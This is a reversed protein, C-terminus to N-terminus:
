RRSQSSRLTPGLRGRSGLLGLLFAAEEHGVVWVCGAPERGFLLVEGLPAERLVDLALLIVAVGDSPLLSELEGVAVVPEVEEHYHVV